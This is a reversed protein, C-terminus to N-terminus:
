IKRKNTAMKVNVMLDVIENKVNWFIFFEFDHMKSINGELYTYINRMNSPDNRAKRGYSSMMQTACKRNSLIKIVM